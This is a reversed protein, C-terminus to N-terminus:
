RAEDVWHQLRQAFIGIEEFNAKKQQLSAERSLRIACLQPLLHYFPAIFTAHSKFIEGVVELPFASKNIKVHLSKGAILLIGSCIKIM